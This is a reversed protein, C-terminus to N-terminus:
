GVWALYCEGIQGAAISAQGFSRTAPLLLSHVPFVPQVGVLRLFFGVADCSRMYESDASREVDDEEEQVRHPLGLVQAVLLGFKEVGLRPRGLLSADKSGPIRAALRADPCYPDMVFRGAQYFEDDERRLRVDRDQQNFEAIFGM